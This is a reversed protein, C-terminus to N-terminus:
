KNYDTNVKTFYERFIERSVVTEPEKRDKVLDEFKDVDKGRLDFQIRKKKVSMFLVIEIYLSVFNILIM